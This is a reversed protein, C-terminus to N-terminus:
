QRWAIFEAAEIQMRPDDVQLRHDFHIIRWMAAKTHFPSRNALVIRLWAATNRWARSIPTSRSADTAAPSAVNKWTFKTGEEWEPKSATKDATTIGALNELIRATRAALAVYNQETTRALENLPDLEDARQRLPGHPLVAPISAPAKIHRVM